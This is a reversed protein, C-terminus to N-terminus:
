LSELFCHIKNDDYTVDNWIRDLAEIKQRPFRQWNLNIELESEKALFLLLRLNEKMILQEEIDRGDSQSEDPIYELPNREEGADDIYISEQIHGLYRYERKRWRKIAGQVQWYIFTQPASKNPDYRHWKEVVYLCVEALVEDFDEFPIRARHFQWFFLKRYKKLIQELLPINEHITM